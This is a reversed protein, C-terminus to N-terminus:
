KGRNNLEVLVCSQYVVNLGQDRAYNVLDTDYAGPQFWIYQIGLKVAEDVYVKGKDASVVVNLCEPVEPLDTLSNYCPENLVDDYMPNVAYTKYGANKLRKFIIHGFKDMSQTAGIVAWKDLKLMNHIIIEM